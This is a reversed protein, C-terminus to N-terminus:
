FDELALFSFSLSIRDIGVCRWEEGWEEEKTWEKKKAWEKKRKRENKKKGKRKKAKRKKKRGNRGKESKKKKGQWEIKNMRKRRGYQRRKLLSSSLLVLFCKWNMLFFFSPLLSTHIHRSRMQENTDPSPLPTDNFVDERRQVCRRWGNLIEKIWKAYIWYIYKEKGLIILSFGLSSFVTICATILM